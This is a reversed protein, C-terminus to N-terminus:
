STFMLIHIRWSLADHEGELDEAGRTRKGLVTAAM